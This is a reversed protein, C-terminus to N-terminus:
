RTPKAIFIRNGSRTYTLSSAAMLTELLEDASHATFSGSVTWNALDPDAIVMQLGYTDNFLHAIEHLSTGEFVFRNNRWAALNEPQRVRSLRAHGRRDLTVLDGPRMLVQQTLEKEGYRLQVAGRNLLVRGGRQRNYVTFETGLVVVEFHQDTKVVFRRDDPTHTVSFTAEGTLAVERSRDGFGFRPLRLVSNGNLTVQSSDPLSVRRIEGYGTAYSKYLIPQRFLWGGLLLLTVSAALLWRFRNSRAPFPYIPVPADVGGEDATKHTMRQQHQEIAKTTDALYQPQQSEWAELWAYFVERNAADKAWEEVLQKQLASARDAFYNFLLEQTVHTKM